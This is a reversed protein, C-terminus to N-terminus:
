VKDKEGIRKKVMHYHVFLALGAFIFVLGLAGEDYIQNPFVQGLFLALGVGVLILGWKLSAYPNVNAGNYFLYKVNEDLEGAKVLKQRLVNDSVIKIVSVISFFVIAVIAIDHFNGM